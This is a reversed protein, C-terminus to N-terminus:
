RQVEQGGRSIKWYGSQGVKMIVEDSRKFGCVCEFMVNVWVQPQIIEQNVTFILM